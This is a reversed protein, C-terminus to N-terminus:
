EHWAVSEALPVRGQQYTFAPHSTDPAGFSIGFLLKLEGPVGLIQRVTDAFYGLVAQPVGAYGRAALSLLFTQAYMGVDSAVRVNDGVSPMFLLAVHPAGFFRVNREVVEARSLSDDRAVGLARYYTRGQESARERCTPPYDATDFTFDKSYKEARLADLLAASLADLKKGAVIHVNWPQTNCNSPACQADQLIDELTDRPIPSPLFGRASHRSRVVDQFSPTPLSM